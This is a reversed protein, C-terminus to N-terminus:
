RMKSYFIKDMYIFEGLQQHYNNNFKIKNANKILEEYENKNKAELIFDFDSCPNDGCCIALIKNFALESLVTGYASVGFKIGSDFIDKNSVKPDIWNIDPYKKKLVKILLKSEPKNNPHPKFGVNLKYKQTIRITDILWLYLDHYVLSRYIHQADTFDGIFVVGEFKSNFAIKNNFDYQNTDMYDLTESGNLRNKIKKYGLNILNNKNELDKFKNRYLWHPSVQTNDKISLKKIKLKKFTSYGIVYVNVGKDLFVRVPIGHSIYTSYTTYYNIITKTKVLDQYYDIQNYCDHLFLILTYDNINLTAKKNFRLYSDYILDGCKISNFNHNLLEERSSLKTFFKFALIFNSIKKLFRINKSNYYINIGFKNYLKRWEKRIMYHHFDKLIKPIITVWYLFSYYTINPVICQFYENPNDSIIKKFNHAMKLDHVSQILNIKENVINNSHKSISNFYDTEQINFKWYKTFTNM